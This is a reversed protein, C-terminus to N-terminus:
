TVRRSSRIPPATTPDAPAPQTRTFTRLLPKWANHGAIVGTIIALGGVISSTTVAEGLIIAGAIVGVMPALYTVTSARVAGWTNVINTNWIYALGTGFVGLALMSWVIRPTLVVPSAALWPTLPLLILTGLGVQVFATPIAPLGRPAIFRRLWVFAGGYCLAAALCAAKPLLDGGLIVGAPNANWPAFVIIVGAFGLILGTTRATGLREAKLGITAVFITMLPTMANLISALGSSIHLEAWSFLLFPVVCLLLGVIALHGWVAPDRPFRQRSILVVAALACTGLVMRALVVQVPSLGELGIKIFLFSTGWTLALALYQALCVGTRTASRSAPSPM